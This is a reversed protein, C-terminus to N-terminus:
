QVGRNLRAYLYGRFIDSEECDLLFNDIVAYTIKKVNSYSEHFKIELEDLRKKLQKKDMINIETELDAMHPPMIVEATDYKDWILSAKNFPISKLIRNRGDSILYLFGKKTQKCVIFIDALDLFRNDITGSLQATIIIDIGRKRSQFLIYSMYRNMKSMSVRSELYAYAEDLIVKCKEYPLHLLQGLELPHVNESEIKYNCIVPVKSTLAIDTSLLTKGSGMYGTIITLPM